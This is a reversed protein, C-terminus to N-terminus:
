GNTVDDLAVAPPAQVPEPTGGVRISRTIATTLAYQLRTPSPGNGVSSVSASPSRSRSIPCSYPVVVPRGRRHPQYSAGIARYAARILPTVSKTSVLSSTSVPSGSTGSQTAYSISPTRTGSMGIVCPSNARATGTYSVKGPQSSSM